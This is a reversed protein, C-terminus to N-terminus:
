KCTHWDSRMDLARKRIFIVVGDKRSERQRLARLTKNLGLKVGKERLFLAYAEARPAGKFLMASTIPYASGIYASVDMGLNFTAQMGWAKLYGNLLVAYAPPKNVHPGSKIVGADCLVMEICYALKSNPWADILCKRFARRQETTDM